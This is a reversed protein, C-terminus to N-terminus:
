HRVALSPQLLVFSNDIILIINLPKQTKGAHEPSAPFQTGNTPLDSTVSAEAKIMAWITAEDALDLTEWAPTVSLNIHLMSLPNSTDDLRPESSLTIRGPRSTKAPSSSPSAEQSPSPYSGDSGPLISKSSLDPPPSIDLIPALDQVPSDPSVFNQVSNLALFHSALTHEEKMDQFGDSITGQAFREHESASRSAAVDEYIRVPVKTSSKSRSLLGEKVRSVVRKRVSLKRSLSSAFRSENKDSQSSIRKTPSQEIVTALHISNSEWSFRTNRSPPRIAEDPLTNQIERLPQANSYKSHVLDPVPQGGTTTSDDIFGTRLNERTKRVKLHSGSTRNSLHTESGISHRNQGPSSTPSTNTHSLQATATINSM